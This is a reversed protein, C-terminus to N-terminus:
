ETKTTVPVAVPNPVSSRVATNRVTRGPDSSKGEKYMALEADCIPHESSLEKLNKQIRKKLRIM